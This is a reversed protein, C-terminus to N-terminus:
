AGGEMAQAAALLTNVTRSNMKVIEIKVGYKRLVGKRKLRSLATDYGKVDEVVLVEVAGPVCGIAQWYRFDAVYRCDELRYVVQRELGRISGHRQADVLQVWRAAEAKSPFTAGYVTTRKARYKHSM